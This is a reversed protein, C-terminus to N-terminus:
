IFILGHIKLHTIKSFSTHFSAQPNKLHYKATV